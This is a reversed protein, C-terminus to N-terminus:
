RNCRRSTGTRWVPRGDPTYIVVNSDDQMILRSGGRRYTNSSWVPSNGNYIVFNGDGQMVAFQVARGHTRSAWLPRGGPAYSVLNGDDQLVFSYCGNPSVLAQGRELRDNQRLAYLRVNRFSEYAPSGTAGASGSGVDPAILMGDNTTIRTVRGSGSTGGIDFRVYQGVCVRTYEFNHCQGTQALLSSSQTVIAILVTALGLAILFVSKLRIM